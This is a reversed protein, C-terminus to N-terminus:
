VDTEETDPFWSGNPDNYDDELCKLCDCDADDEDHIENFFINM